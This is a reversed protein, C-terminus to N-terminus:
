KRGCFSIDCFSWSNWSVSWARMAQRHKKCSLNCTMSNANWKGFSSWIDFLLNKWHYKTSSPTLPFKHYNLKIEKGRPKLVIIVLLLRSLFAIKLPSVGVTSESFFIAHSQLSEHRGGKAKGTIVTIGLHWRDVVLLVWSFIRAHPPTIYLDFETDHGFSTNKGDTKGRPAIKLMYLSGPIQKTTSWITVPSSHLLL